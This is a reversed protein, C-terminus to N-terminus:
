IEQEKSHRIRQAKIENGVKYFHESDHFMEEYKKMQEESLSHFTDSSLPADCIFFTGAVIDVM